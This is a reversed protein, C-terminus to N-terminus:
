VEKKKMFNMTLGYTTFAVNQLLKKYQLPLKNNFLALEKETSIHLIHLRTEHKTALDVALSSSLFCAEESRILPHSKFPIDDGYKQKFEALNKKITLEDECHTAILMPTHEFIQKLVERNDVLMNGTSSGM